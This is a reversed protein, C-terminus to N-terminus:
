YSGGATETPPIVESPQAPQTQLSKLKDFVSKFLNPIRSVAAQPKEHGLEKEVEQTRKARTLKDSLEALKPM